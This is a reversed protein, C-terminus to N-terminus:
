DAPPGIEASALSSHVRELLDILRQRDVSAIGALAEQQAQESASAIRALIPRAAECLHLHNARRDGPHRRREIWHNKQLRNLTRTLTMRDTETLEGLRTQTVGPHRALQALVRCETLTLTTEHHQFRRAYLHIIDAVLFGLKNLGEGLSISAGETRQGPRKQM